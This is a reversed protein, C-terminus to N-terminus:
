PAYLYGNTIAGNQYNYKQGGNPEGSARIDIRFTYRSGGSALSGSDVPASFYNWGRDVKKTISGKLEHITVDNNNANSNIYWSLEGTKTQYIELVGFSILSTQRKFDGGKRM